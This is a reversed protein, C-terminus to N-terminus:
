WELRFSYGHFVYHRFRRLITFGNIIDDTFIVPLNKNNNKSFSNIMELHFQENNLIKISKYDLIRKLINEIGNFFQSLMLAIAAKDYNTVAREGQYDPFNSIDAFLQELSEIEINIGEILKDPSM